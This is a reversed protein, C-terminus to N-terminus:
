KSLCLSYLHPLALSLSPSLSLSLSLIGLLSWATLVSGLTPGFGRVTLDHGSGFGLTSCEVTQAVWTGRNTTELPFWSLSLFNSNLILDLYFALAEMIAM